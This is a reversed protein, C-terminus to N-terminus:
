AVIELDKRRLKEEKDKIANYSSVRLDMLTDKEFDRLELYAGCGSIPCTRNSRLYQVLSAKSFTHRCKKSIIPNQYQQRAIPCVLEIKGGEVEIEDEDENANNASGSLHNPLPAQPHQVVFAHQQLAIAEKDLLADGSGGHYNSHNTKGQEENLVSKFLDSINAPPNQKTHFYQLTKYSLEVEDNARTRIMGKVQQTANNLDRLKVQLLSLKNMALLSQELTAKSEPLSLDKAGSISNILYTDTSEILEKKLRKILESNTDNQFREIQVKTTRDIPLYNPLQFNKTMETYAQIMEDFEADMDDEVGVLQEEQFDEQGTSNDYGSNSVDEAMEEEDSDRIGRTGYGKRAM